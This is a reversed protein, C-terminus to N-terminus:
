TTEINVKQAKGVYNWGSTAGRRDKPVEFQSLMKFRKNHGGKKVPTEKAPAGPPQELCMEASILSRTQM